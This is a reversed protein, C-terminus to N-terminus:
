ERPEPIGEDSLGARLRPRDPTRLCEVEVLTSAVGTEITRWERLRDGQGLIVRLLVSSDVYVIM